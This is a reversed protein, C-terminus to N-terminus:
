IKRIEFRGSGLWFVIEYLGFKTEINTRWSGDTLSQIQGPQRFFTYSQGRSGKFEYLGKETKMTRNLMHQNTGDIVRFRILENDPAFQVETREGTLLAHNQVLTVNASFERFFLDVQVKEVAKELSIVPLSFLLGVIILTLLTELLTFGGQSNKAM